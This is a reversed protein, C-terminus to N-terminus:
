WFFFSLWSLRYGSVIKKNTNYIELDFTGYTHLLQSTYSTISM